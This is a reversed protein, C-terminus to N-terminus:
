ATAHFSRGLAGPANLKLRTADRSILVLVLITSLYPLMALIDSPVNIGFAEAQFQAITVFGFLLAGAVLWGPKWTSFTVLALAIWGRGATMGENWLPTYVLSLYAGALGSMGGGFALAAYRLRIVPHGLAHAVEPNEGVARLILGKRSRSLFLHVGIALLLALIVLPDIQLVQQWLPSFTSLGPILANQFGGLTRSEFPNGILTSLGAGFITLALGSATQNALLTQTLVAFIMSMLVGVIIALIFGAVLSHTTVTGIFGAAAGMLMTGEVGLNLVGSKETVLEGLGALILPTAARLTAVLIAVILVLDHM